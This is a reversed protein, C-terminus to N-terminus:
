NNTPASEDHYPRGSQYLELRKGIAAALDARGGALAAARARSALDVARSFKGVEANAAALTDLLNVHRYATAECAGKALRAAERGDRVAADPCTALLWALDNVLMIDKPCDQLGQRLCQLARVPQGMRNLLVALEHHARPVRPNIELGARFASVAEDLRNLQTLAGALNFYGSIDGPNLEISKKYADIAAQPNGLALLASGLNNYAPAYGANLELAKRFHEIAAAPEANRALCIGLGNHAQWSQPKLEVARRAYPLAERVRGTERLAEALGAMAEAHEPNLEIARRYHPAAKAFDGKLGYTVGMEYEFAPRYSARTDFGIRENLWTLGAALALSTLVIVATKPRRRWDALSYLSWGAALSAVPVVPLRYRPSYWFVMVVVWSFAFLVLEPICRGPRRVWFAVAVLAPPLLWAVRLPALRLSEALGAARELAPRYIDGYNQSTLFWYAKRGALAITELPHGAWRKMAKRAFYRDVDAWSGRRGTEREYVRAADDFMQDRDLSIGTIETYVGQAGPASGLYLNIGANASVPIIAHATYLNHLTAPLIVAVASCLLAAGLKLAAHQQRGIWGAWCALVPVVLMMAPTALCNVGLLAGAVGARGANRREEFRVLALWLLCVLLLQVSSVLIRTSRATPGLTLLFVLAAIIGVVPGFRKRGIVAILAAAAVNAGVQLVYVMTLGGGSLRVLALLYPYLPASLFPRDQSWQGHALGEAWTWYTRADLRLLSSFPNHEIYDHVMWLRSVAAALCLLGVAPWFWRGRGEDPSQSGVAAGNARTDSLSPEM